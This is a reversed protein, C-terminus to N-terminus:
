GEEGPGFLTIKRPKWAPSSNLSLKGTNFDEPDIQRFGKMAGGDLLSGEQAIYIVGPDEDEAPTMPRTEHVSALYSVESNPDDFDGFVRARGLCTQVCAPVLGAQLRHYCFTCKGPLGTIPDVFIAEAHCAEIAAKVETDIQKKSRGKTLKKLDILIVGDDTQYFAGVGNNKSAEVCAPNACHDCIYLFYYRRANPFRGKEFYRVQTRWVGLPVKNEAKCAVECAHCGICRRMDMVMGYRAM